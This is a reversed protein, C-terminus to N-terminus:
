NEEYNGDYLTVITNNYRKGINALQENAYQKLQDIQSIFDAMSTKNNVSRIIDSATRAFMTFVMNYETYKERKKLRIKLTQMWQKDDIENLLYKLRLDSNDEIETIYKRLTVRRIHNILRNTNSINKIFSKNNTCLYRIASYEIDTIYENCPIDGPNRPIQGNNIKRQYEYYHPNHIVGTEIKGKTWSFATHCQTCYMQDCGNIKFILCSCSPCPKTDSQLLKVTEVINPDCKHDDLKVMHCDKCGYTDCVGCKLQTSLFGRCSEVPCKRIFQRRETKEEPETDSYLIDNRREYLNGLNANLEDKKNAYEALKQKKDLKQEKSTPKTARLMKTLHKVEVLQININKIENGTDNILKKKDMEKKHNILLEQSQPLLSKERQLLIEARRNRYDINCFKDGFVSHIFEFSWVKKCDMCHPKDDDLEYIYRKLCNECAEFNCYQCKVMKIVKVLCVNCDITTM